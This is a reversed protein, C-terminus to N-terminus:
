SSPNDGTFAPVSGMGSIQYILIRIHLVINSLYDSNLYYDIWLQAPHPSVERMSMQGPDRGSGVALVCDLPTVGCRLNQECQLGRTRPSLIATAISITHKDTVLYFESIIFFLDQM